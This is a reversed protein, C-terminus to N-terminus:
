KIKIKLNIVMYNNVVRSECTGYKNFVSQAKVPDHHFLVEKEDWKNYPEHIWQIFIVREKAVSVIKRVNDAFEPSDTPINLFSPSRAFAVDYLKYVSDLYTKELFDGSIFVCNLYKEKAINIGIESIDIGTVDYWESLIDAWFGDGCGIDILKKRDTDPTILTLLFKKEGDKEYRFGGQQYFEDYQKEMKYGSEKKKGVLLIITPREIINMIQRIKDPNFHGIWCTHLGLSVAMLDMCMTAATVDFIYKPHKSELMANVDTGFIIFACSCNEVYKQGFCAIKLLAKLEKNDVPYIHRRPGGSAFPASKGAFLIENLETDSLVYNSDFNRCSRRKTLVEKLEM